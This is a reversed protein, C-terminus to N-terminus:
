QTFWQLLYVLPSSQLATQPPLTPIHIIDNENFFTEWLKSKFEPANDTYVYVMEKEIVKKAKLKYTTLTNLTMEALRNPLFFTRCHSTRSNHFKM